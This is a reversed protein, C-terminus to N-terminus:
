VVPRWCATTCDANQPGRGCQYVVYINYFYCLVTLLEKYWKENDNWAPDTFCGVILLTVHKM